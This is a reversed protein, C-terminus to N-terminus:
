LRFAAAEALHEAKVATSGALDAVTRAVRLLRDFGRGTLRLRDVLDRLLAAGDGEPLALRRLEPGALDANLCGQREMALERAAAVRAAVVASPEGPAAALLEDRTLKPVTLHLDVRDLLPGSLRAAYRLREAQSCTCATPDDDLARGCPCPNRAAVLQFRAPLAVPGSARSIVIVGSELPQRLAELVPRSFEPAEDLFLVGLHALSAEGPRVSSGGGVIGAESGSHHPARFPPTLDLGPGRTLGAASYVRGVEVASRTDLPPLLGPLRTALMTKGAGPPGTLLANHRGAAAVELLRKGLEQGKVDALDLHERPATAPAPPVPALRARGRLHEVAEALTRPALAEVGPVAAAEAANAPACLLTLGAALAEVAVSVAARVPRLTGDLALEGFALYSALRAAPVAGAAALLGLAIPLDFAPGDKRVDAPALNVTVRSPSLPHGLRKLAARVRERSEQVAAGPLGVITFSPLGGSVLVEVTVRVADVGVVTASAVTAYM